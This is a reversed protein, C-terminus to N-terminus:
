KQFELFDTFIAQWQQCGKSLFNFASTQNNKDKIYKCFRILYFYTLM